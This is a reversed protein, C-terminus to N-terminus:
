EFDKARDKWYKSGESEADESLGKILSKVQDLLFEGFSSAIKDKGYKVGHGPAEWVPAEGSADMESCDILYFPGYGTVAIRIMTNTILGERRDKETGFVVSSSTTGDLGSNGLGAISISEVQLLGVGLLMARYSNPLSVSLRQELRMIDEPTPRRVPLPHLDNDRLLKMAEYYATETVV